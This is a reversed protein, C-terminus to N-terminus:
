SMQFELISLIRWPPPRPPGLKTKALGDRRSLCESNMTWEGKREYIMLWPSSPFAELDHLISTRLYALYVRSADILMTCVQM